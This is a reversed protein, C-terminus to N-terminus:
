KTTYPAETGFRRVRDEYVALAHKALRLSETARGITAPNAKALTSERARVARRRSELEDGLTRV